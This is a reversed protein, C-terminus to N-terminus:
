AEPLANSLKKLYEQIAKNIIYSVTRDEKEAIKQLTEKLEPTTKFGIMETKKAM